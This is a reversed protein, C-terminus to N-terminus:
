VKRVLLLGFEGGHALIAAVRAALQVPWRMLAGILIILLAKGPVVAGVFLAAALPMGIAVAPDIRMGISIFFLGVLVDRFPRIDDAAQHRFDSGGLVMGAVFAGIPPSVGALHM